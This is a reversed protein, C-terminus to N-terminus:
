ENSVLAGNLGNFRFCAQMYLIPEL